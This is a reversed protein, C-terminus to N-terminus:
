ASFVHIKKDSESQQGDGVSVDSMEECIAVVQLLIAVVVLQGRVFELGSGTRHCTNGM